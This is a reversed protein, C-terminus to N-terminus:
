QHHTNLLFHLQNVLKLGITTMHAYLNVMKLAKVSEFEGNLHCNNHNMLAGRHHTKDELRHIKEELQRTKDGLQPNDLM